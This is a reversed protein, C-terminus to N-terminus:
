PCTQPSVQYNIKYTGFNLSQSTVTAFNAASLTQQNQYKTIAETFKVTASTGFCTDLTVSLVQGPTISLLNSNKVTTGQLTVVIQGSQSGTNTISTIRVQSLGSLAIVIPSQTVTKNIFAMEEPIFRTFNDALANTGSFLISTVIIVVLFLKWLWNKQAQIM